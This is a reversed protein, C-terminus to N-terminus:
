LDFNYFKSFCKTSFFAYKISTPKKARLSLIKEVPPDSKRLTAKMQINNVSGRLCSHGIYPGRTEDM